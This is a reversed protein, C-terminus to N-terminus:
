TAFTRARARFMLVKHAFEPDEIGTIDYAEGDIVLRRAALFRRAYHTEVLVEGRLHYQDAEVSASSPRSKIAAWVTAIDDAIETTRGGAHHVRRVTQLHIRTRRKGINLYSTM